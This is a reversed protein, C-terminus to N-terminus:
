HWAAAEQRNFVPCGACDKAACGEKHGADEFWHKIRILHKKLQKGEESVRYTVNRGDEARVVLGFRVFDQLRASLLTPNIRHRSLSQLANFTQPDDDLNFFLAYAWKKGLLDYLELLSCEEM